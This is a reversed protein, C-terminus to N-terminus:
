TRCAPTLTASKTSVANYDKQAAASSAAGSAGSTPPNFTKANLNLMYAEKSIFARKRRRVEDEFAQGFFPAAPACVCLRVRLFDKSKPTKQKNTKQHKKGM